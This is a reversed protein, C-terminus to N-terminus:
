PLTLAKVKTRETCLKQKIVEILRFGSCSVSFHYFCPFHFQLELRHCKGLTPAM